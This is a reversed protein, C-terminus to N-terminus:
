MREEKSLIAKLEPALSPSDRIIIENRGVWERQVIGFLPVVDKARCIREVLVLTARFQRECISSDMGSINDLVGETIDQIFKLKMENQTIIKVM